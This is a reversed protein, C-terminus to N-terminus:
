KMRGACSLTRSRRNPQQCLGAPNTVQPPAPQQRAVKGRMGTNPCDYVVRLGSLALAQLTRQRGARRIQQIKAAEAFRTQDNSIPYRRGTVQAGQAHRLVYRRAEHNVIKPWIADCGRVLRPQQPQRAGGDAHGARVLPKRKRVPVRRRRCHEALAQGTDRWLNHCHSTMSCPGTGAPTAVNKDYEALV